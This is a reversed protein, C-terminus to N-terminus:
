VKLKGRVQSKLCKRMREEQMYEVQLDTELMGEAQRGSPSM